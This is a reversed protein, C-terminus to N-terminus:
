SVRPVSEPEVSLMCRSSHGAELTSEAQQPLLQELVRLNEGWSYREEVRKRAALGIARARQPDNLLQVTKDAFEKGDRAVCLDREPEADIGEYAQPTVVIPRGMAMAELVKNQIGRAIRLPAICVGRSVYDRIDPVFGTVVVGPVDGLRRVARAPHNGVIYLRADPINARIQPLVEEAFWCIGQVNPRYDMVGTFVLAREKECGEPIERPVFYELDVGNSVAMVRGLFCQDLCKAEADSVLLLHDFECGVRRELSAIYNAERRYLWAAAFWSEEAFERWKVSDVDILDMIKPITRLRAAHRSRFVYEAMPSSSCFVGEISERDILDDIQRQLARSYFYRSSIAERNWLASLALVKDVRPHSRKVVVKRTYPRFQSVSRLDNKDDVLSALYLDHRVALFKLINLARIKEGKYPPYPLRHTLFLLRM